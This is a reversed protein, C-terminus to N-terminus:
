PIKERITKEFISTNNKEDIQVDSFFSYFIRKNIFYLLQM